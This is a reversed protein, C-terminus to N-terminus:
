DVLPVIHAQLWTTFEGRDVKGAAVRLVIEEQEDIPAYGYM